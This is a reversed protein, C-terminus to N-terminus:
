SRRFLHSFDLQRNVFEFAIAACPILLTFFPLCYQAKAEWLLYVFFGVIFLCPLYVAVTSLSKRNLFTIVCYVAAAIYISSQFADVFPFLLQYITWILNTSRRGGLRNEIFQLNSGDTSTSYNIAAFYRSNFDPACWETDVKTRFFDLTYGPNKIFFDIRGEIAEKSLRAMETYNNNTTAQINNPFPNWWGPMKPTGDLDSDQLGMAIWATKPIGSGFGHGIRNEMIRQPILASASGVGVILAAILFRSLGHKSDAGLFHIFWILATGIGIIVFTSKLWCMLSFPITSLLIYKIEANRHKATLGKANLYIYVCILAFGIQNTYMFSSYLLNPICLNLLGATIVVTIQKKAILASLFTLCIISIENSIINIVQLLLGSHIGAIKALIWYFLLSGSQYPYFTLYLSGHKLAEFSEPLTQNFYQAESGDTLSLGYTLLQSADSYYTNSSSQGVVWLLQFIVSIFCAFGLFRKWNISYDKRLVYFCLFLITISILITVLSKLSSNLIDSRIGAESLPSWVDTTYTLFLSRISLYVLVLICFSLGLFLLIRKVVSLSTPLKGEAGM